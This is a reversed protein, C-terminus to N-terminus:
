NCATARSKCGSPDGSSCSKLADASPCDWNGGNYGCCLSTTSTNSSGSCSATQACGSTDPNAAQCKAFSDSTPCNYSQGNVTCCGGSSGSGGGNGNGGNSSTTSTSSCGITVVLGTAVLAVAHALKM